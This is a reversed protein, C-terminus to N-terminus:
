TVDVLKEAVLEEVLEELDKTVTAEDVEFQDCLHDRLQRVTAGDAILSWVASGTDNLGYYTGSGLELIVAEGDLIRSVVDEKSKVHASDALPM